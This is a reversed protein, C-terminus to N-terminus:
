VWFARDTWCDFRMLLVKNKQKMSLLVKPHMLLFIGSPSEENSLNGCVSILELYTSVIGDALTAVLDELISDGYFPFDELISDGYFPFLIQDYCVNKRCQLMLLVLDILPIRDSVSTVATHVLSWM